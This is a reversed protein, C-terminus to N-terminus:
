REEEIPTIQGALIRTCFARHQAELDPTLAKCRGCHGEILDHGCKPCLPRKAYDAYTLPPKHVFICLGAAGDNIKRACQGCYWQETSLNYWLAGERQCATRACKM